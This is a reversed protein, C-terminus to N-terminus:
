CKSLRVFRVSESVGRGGGSLTCSFHQDSSTDRDFLGSYDWWLNDKAIAKEAHTLPSKRGLYVVMFHM